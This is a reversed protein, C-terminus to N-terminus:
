DIILHKRAKRAKEPDEISIPGQCVTKSVENVKLKCGRQKCFLKFKVSFNTFYLKLQIPM